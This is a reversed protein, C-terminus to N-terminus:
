LISSLIETAGSARPHGGGGYLRAVKSVDYDGKSRFSWRRIWAQDKESWTEYFVASYPADPHRNLLEDAVESFFLTANVVPITEPGVREFRVRECMIRVQRDRFRIIGAGNKYISHFGKQDLSALERWLKFDMPHSQLVVHVEKTGEIEFKWLDRDQVHHLLRPTPNTPHFFEWSLVAGSKTMDFLCFSLGTLDERATAHHDIVVLSEFRENAAILAERPFSFDLVYVSAHDPVEDLPATKQAYDCPIYKAGDGFKEWAAYASGFGDYCNGHYLVWVDM